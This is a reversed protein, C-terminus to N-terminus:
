AAYLASLYVTQGFSFNDPHFFGRRGDPLERNSFLDLLSAKVDSRFYDPQVCVRMGIDLSVYQPDNFEVDQGAMRYRDVFGPLDAKLAAPDTGTQPDVTIFQTYWSGTWRTTAAARQIGDHREAVAAYDDATVARQQIRFAQPANRRVSDASEPDIGGAAPLPNRVSAIRGIDSAAVVIHAIAEAGVNGAAGNGVRYTATFQTGTDPRAGHEGDGFRLSAGGGDDVEV